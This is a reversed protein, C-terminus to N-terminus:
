LARFRISVEIEVGQQPLRVVDVVQPGLGDSTRRPSPPIPISSNLVTAQFEGRGRIRVVQGANLQYGLQIHTQPDPARAAARTTRQIGATKRVAVTSRVSVKKVAM